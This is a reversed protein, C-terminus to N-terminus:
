AIKLTRFKKMNMFIEMVAAQDEPTIVDSCHHTTVWPHEIVDKLEIRKQPNKELLGKILEKAEKSVNEWIPKDFVLPQQQINKFTEEQDKGAFPTGGSLLLYLFVGLSWNDCKHNYHKNIVEPAIYNIQIIKKKGNGCM